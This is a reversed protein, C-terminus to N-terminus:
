SLIFILISAVLQNVFIFALIVIFYMVTVATNRKRRKRVFSKDELDSIDRIGIVPYDSTYRWISSPMRQDIQNYYKIWAATYRFSFYCVILLLASVLM